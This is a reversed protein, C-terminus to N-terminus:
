TMKSIWEKSEKLTKGTDEQTKYFLAMIKRRKQERAKNLVNEWM